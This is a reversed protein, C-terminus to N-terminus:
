DSVQQETQPRIGNWKESPNRKKEIPKDFDLPLVVFLMLWSDLCDTNASFDKLMDELLPIYKINSIYKRLFMNAAKYQYDIMDTGRPQGYKEIKSYGKGSLDKRKAVMHLYGRESM